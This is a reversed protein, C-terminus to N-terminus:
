LSPIEFTFCDEIKEKWWANAREQCQEITPYHFCDWHGGGFTIELKFIDDSIDPDGNYILIAFEALENISVFIPDPHSSTSEGEEWILPKLNKM